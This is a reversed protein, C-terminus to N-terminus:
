ALDRLVSHDRASFNLICAPSDSRMDTSRRHHRQFLIGEANVRSNEELKFTKLM